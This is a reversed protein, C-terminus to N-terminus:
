ENKKKKMGTIILLMLGISTFIDGISIIFSSIFKIPITDGLFWLITSSDTITYLGESSINTNFGVIKIAEQSVPMAGGNLFIPTANLLFGVGMIVICLDRRNLLVFILLLSYMVVDLFYTTTGIRLLGKRMCMVILLELGFSIFILYIARLKINELNKIRGGLIYGLVIAAALSIVFM